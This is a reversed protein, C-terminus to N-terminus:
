ELRSRIRKYAGALAFAPLAEGVIRAEKIFGHFPRNRGPWNGIVLPMTSNRMVVGDVGGSAALKGDIYARVTPGQVVLALYSWRSPELEFTLVHHWAQGDGVILGYVNPAHQHVVFGEFYDVGPHNGVITALPVQDSEPKLIVEVTFDRGL